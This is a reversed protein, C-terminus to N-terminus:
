RWGSARSWASRHGVGISVSLSSRSVSRVTQSGAGDGVQQVVAYSGTGSQEIEANFNSGVQVAIGTNGTGSQSISATNGTGVQVTTARNAFGDQATVAFNGSGIQVVDAQNAQALSPVAHLSTAGALLIASIYTIYRHM